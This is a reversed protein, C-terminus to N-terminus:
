SSSLKVLTVHSYRRSTVLTVHSYRRPKFLAYFFVLFTFLPDIEDDMFIVVEKERTTDKTIGELSEGAWPKVYQRPPSEIRPKNKM